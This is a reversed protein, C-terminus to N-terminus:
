PDPHWRERCVTSPQSLTLDNSINNRDRTGQHSVHSTYISLSHSSMQSDGKEGSCHGGAEGRGAVARWM